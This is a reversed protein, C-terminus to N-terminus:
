RRAGGGRSAGRYFGGFLDDDPGGGFGFGGYRGFGFGGRSRSREADYTRRQLTDSLVEYAKQVALFKDQAAKREADSADPSIKDPHLKLCMKKYAKRIEDFM